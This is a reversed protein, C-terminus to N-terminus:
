IKLLISVLLILILLYRIEKQQDALRENLRYIEDQQNEIKEEFNEKQEKMKKELNEKQDKMKKELNEKQEKMENQQNEIKMLLARDSNIGKDFDVYGCFLFEKSDKPLLKKFEDSEYDLKYNKKDLFRSTFTGYESNSILMYVINNAKKEDKSNSNLKLRKIIDEEYIKKIKEDSIVNKLNLVSIYKNIQKAKYKIEKDYINLGVEIFLHFLEPLDALKKEDFIICSYLKNEYYFNDQLMKKFKEKEVNPIIIDFDGSIDKNIKIDKYIKQEAESAYKKKKQKKKQGINIIEKKNDEKINNLSSSNLNNDNNIKNINENDINNININKLKINDINEDIKTNGSSLIDIKDSMSETHSSVQGLDKYNSLLNNTEKNYKMLIDQLKIIETQSIDKQNYAIKYITMIEDHLSYKIGHIFKQCELEKSFSMGIYPEFITGKKDKGDVKLDVYNDKEKEKNKEM